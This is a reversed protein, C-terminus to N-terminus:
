TFSESGDSSSSSIAAKQKCKEGSQDGRRIAAAAAAQASRVISLYQERDGDSDFGSM